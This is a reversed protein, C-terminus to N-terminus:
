GALRKVMLHSSSPCLSVFQSTSRIPAPADERDARQYGLRAFFAGATTTLLYLSRLGHSRAEEEVCAVLAYGIGRGRRSPTVALSRLLGVQGYRELGVAGVLAGDQVCGFFRLGESTGVDSFLM